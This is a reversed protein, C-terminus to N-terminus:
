SIALNCLCIISAGYPQFMSELRLLLQAKEIEKAKKERLDAKSTKLLMEVSDVLEDNEFPKTLYHDAGMKYGRVWDAEANKATLVLVKTENLLRQEAMAKLVGYGDLNPMMIDLIVLDPKTAHIADLAKAGDSAGIVDHQETLLITKILQRIDATDDVVLIRGIAKRWRAQRRPDGDDCEGLFPM